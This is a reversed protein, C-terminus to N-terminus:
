SFVQNHSCIREFVRNRPRGAYTKNLCSVFLWFFLPVVTVSVPQCYQQAIQHQGIMKCCIESQYTIGQHSNGFMM